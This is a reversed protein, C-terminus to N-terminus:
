LPHSGYSEEGGVELPEGSGLQREDDLLSSSCDGSRVGNTFGCIRGARVTFTLQVFDGVAFPTTYAWVIGHDAPDGHGNAGGTGM